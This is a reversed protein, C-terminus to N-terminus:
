CVFVLLVFNLLHFTLFALTGSDGLAWCIRGLAVPVLPRLIYIYVYVYLIIHEYVSLAICCCIEIFYMSEKKEENKSQQPSGTWNNRQAQNRGRVEGM